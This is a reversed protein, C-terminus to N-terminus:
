RILVNNFQDRVTCNSTFPIEWGFFTTNGSCVIPTVAPASAMPPAPSPGPSLRQPEPRVAETNGRPGRRARTVASPQRAAAKVVRQERQLELAEIRKKAAEARRRREEEQAERTEVDGWSYHTNPDLNKQEPATGFLWSELEPRTTAVHILTKAAYIGIIRGNTKSDEPAGRMRLKEREGKKGKPPLAVTPLPDFKMGSTDVCYSSASGKGLREMAADWGKVTEIRRGRKDYLIYNRSADASAAWAGGELVPAPPLSKIIRAKRQESKGGPGSMRGCRGDSAASSHLRERDGSYLFGVASRAVAAAVAQKDACEGAPILIARSEKDYFSKALSERCFARLAGQELLSVVTGASQTSLGLHGQCLIDEADFLTRSDVQHDPTKALETKAPEAKGQAVSAAMFFFGLFVRSYGRM